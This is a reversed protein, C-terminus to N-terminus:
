AESTSLTVSRQAKSRWSIAVKRLFVVFGSISLRNDKDGSYDSDSMAELVWDEGGAPEMKYVLSRTNRVYNIVMNAAKLHEETPRDLHKSLERVANCIEPRTKTAVYLLKGVAERYSRHEKAGVITSEEIARQLIM